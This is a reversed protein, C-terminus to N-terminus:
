PMVTESRRELAEPSLPELLPVLFALPSLPVLKLSEKVPRLPSQM